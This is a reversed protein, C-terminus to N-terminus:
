LTRDMLFADEGDKYYRPVRRKVVFGLKKYLNIAPKNSVRVELYVSVCGLEKLINLVARMLKEGIGMRRYEPDVAITIIHGINGYEVRAFIYGVIRGEVESVLSVDSLSEILAKTYYPPYPNRFSLSEIRQIRSLDEKRARRLKVNINKRKM